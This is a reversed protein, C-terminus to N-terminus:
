ILFKFMGPNQYGLPDQLWDEMSVLPHSCKMKIPQHPKLRQRRIKVIRDEWIPPYLIKQDRIQYFCEIQLTKKKKPLFPFPFYLLFYEFLDYHLDFM